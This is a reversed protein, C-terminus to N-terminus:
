HCAMEIPQNHEQPRVLLQHQIRNRRIRPGATRKIPQYVPNGPQDEAFFNQLDAFQTENNDDGNNHIHVFLDAFLRASLASERSQQNAVRVYNEPTPRGESLARAASRQVATEADTDVLIICLKLHGNSVNLLRRFFQLNWTLDRFTADFLFSIGESACRSAALQSLGM